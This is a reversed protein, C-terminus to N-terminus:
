WKRCSPGVELDLVQSAAVVGRDLLDVSQAASRKTADSKAVLSLQRLLEILQKIHRVFDGPAHEGGALVAGLRANSAWNRAAVALGPDPARTLPLGESAEVARLRAGMAQVEAVRTALNSGLSHLPDKLPAGAPSRSRNQARSRYPARSVKGPGLRKEFTLTSVLGALEAPALGDMLGSELCLAVLLDCEHYIQALRKGAPTLQWGDVCGFRTLVQLTRDLQASLSGMACSREARLQFSELLRDHGDEEAHAAVGAPGHDALYQAFSSDLLRHAEETSYSRVLNVTLNYTPRFSSTLAAPEATALSAVQSFGVQSSWEVVTYGIKDIGRRGARGTLQAFEGATLVRRDTGGLKWPREIVVTRAPMNIGLSLTETAFVVRILGALFCEEVAERFAPVMGAHHSALGAEMGALWASFGLAQLDADSISEVHREVIQRILQGEGPATLRVGEELCQRVADDCAVRSFIFDISPLMQRESLLWIMESRHPPFWRPRAGGRKGARRQPGDLLSGDPHPKNGKLLPILRLSGSSRDGVLFNHRLRVPRSTASIAAVEGHVSRIWDAVQDANSVTASLCVLRANKPSLIIVEEWVQGRYPDQLFHVEDLVVVSVEDLGAPNSHIMNRLVETTMVVVQAWGRVSNDGTLLGVRAAGLSGSLDQFKQNSLAKIPTTYFARRGEALALHVAYEAVLTKGAGTPATVLVSSGADLAEMADLQFQDLAYGLGSVFRSRVDPPGSRSSRLALSSGARAPQKM